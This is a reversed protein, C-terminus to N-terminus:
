VMRRQDSLFERVITDFIHAQEVHVIHGAQAVIHLRSHPLLQHMRQAIDAFKGDDEGAIFQVPMPLQPLAEWWSPQAGTGMGRLSGALGEPRNSLRQARLSQRVDAPMRQLSRFLPINEWYSVFWELGEHEIRRALQEDSARRAQRESETALGPSSSELILSRVKHPALVAMSLALRGGMSYGLVHAAPAGVEDLLATLDQVAKDMAYRSHDLPAASRGHGIIDVAIVRYHRSWEPIFPAWNEASGTFGHLLLLPEGEGSIEVHLSVGNVQVNM